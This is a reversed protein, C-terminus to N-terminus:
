VSLVFVIPGSDHGFVICTISFWPCESFILYKNVKESCIGLNSQLVLNFLTLLSSFKMLM